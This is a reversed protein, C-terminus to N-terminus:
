NQPKEKIYSWPCNICGSECCKPRVMLLWEKTYIRIKVGDVEQWYFDVGEILEDIKMRKHDCM